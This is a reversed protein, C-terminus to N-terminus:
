SNSVRMKLVRAPSGAVIAGAPVDRTVVSKAAIVAGKGIRVGSLVVVNYGIWVDDEVVIPGKTTIPQRAILDNSGFGHDYSYFASFPAIQVHSGIMIPALASIFSCSRQVTTKEGFSVKGGPFLEVVCDKHLEVGEGIWLPEENDQRFLVVQDGIFVNKAGSLDRWRVEATSAIYGNSNMWAFPVRSKYGASGFEAIRTAPRRFLDTAAIRLWIKQWMQIARKLVLTKLSRHTREEPWASTVVPVGAM